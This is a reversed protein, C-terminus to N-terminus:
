FKHVIGLSFADWDSDPFGDDWETYVAYITTRTSLKHDLGVTWQEAKDLTIAWDSIFAMGDGKGYAAKITNNGMTYSGSIQWSKGDWGPTISTADHDEYVYGLHFGNSTYGLGLRWLEFATKYDANALSVFFPGNQYSASLSVAEIGDFKNSASPIVVAGAFSFGNWNPSNYFVTDTSRLDYFGLQNYDGLTDSFLELSATSNNLPLDTQGIGMFGWNGALAIYTNRDNDVNGLDDGSISFEMQYILSLGEGLDESGRIGFRSNHSNVGAGNYDVPLTDIGSNLLFFSGDDNLDFSDISYHLQGYISVDAIATIPTIIAAAVAAALFKKNM